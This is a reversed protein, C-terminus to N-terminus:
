HWQGAGAMVLAAASHCVLCRSLARGEGAHRVGQQHEGVPGPERVAPRPALLIGHGRPARRQLQPAAHNPVLPAQPLSLVGWTIQPWHMPFRLGWVRNGATGAVLGVFICCPLPYPMVLQATHDSPVAQIPQLRNHGFVAAAGCAGRVFSGRM